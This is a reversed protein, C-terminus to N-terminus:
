AIYLSSIPPEIDNFTRNTHHKKRIEDWNFTDCIGKYCTKNEGCTMGDPKDYNECVDAYGGRGDYEGITDATSSYDYEAGGNSVDTLNWCCEIFCQLTKNTLDPVVRIGPHTLNCFEEETMNEGPYFDNTINATDNVFLCSDPLRSVLFKIQEMSCNSLISKNQRDRHVNSMLNGYSASCNTANPCGDHDSGLLHGIEHAMTIVGSFLKPKDEGLAVKDDSCIGGIEALGQVDSSLTGNDEYTLDDSIFLYVIDCNATVCGNIYETSKNLTTEADSTCIDSKGGDEQASDAEECTRNGLLHEDANLMTAAYQVLDKTSNFTNYYSVSTVMCVEVVFEDTLNPNVPRSSFDKPDCEQVPAQIRRGDDEESLPAAVEEVKHARSEIGSRSSLGAPTIRLNRTLMGRVEVSDGFLQEIILSSKHINDHYLNKQLEEGNLNETHFQASSSSVFQLNKAIISSKELTLTLGDHVHLILQGEKDRSELLRPHVIFGSCYNNLFVSFLIYRCATSLLPKAKARYPFCHDSKM